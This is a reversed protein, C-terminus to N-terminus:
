GNPSCLAVFGTEDCTYQGKTTYEEKCIAVEESFPLFSADETCAM